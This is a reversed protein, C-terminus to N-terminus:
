DSPKFAPRISATPNKQHQNGSEHNQMGEQGNDRNHSNDAKKQCAEFSFLYELRMNPFFADRIKESEPFTFDCKGNVKNRATRETRGIVSQIDRLSVNYRLM